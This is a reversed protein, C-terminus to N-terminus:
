CRPRPLRWPWRRRFDTLVCLSPLSPACPSRRSLLAASAPARRLRYWWVGETWAVTCEWRKPLLSASHICEVRRAPLIGWVTLEGEKLGAEGYEDYTKRKEDDSLVEYAESIEKFKEEAAARNDPNKDPHRFSSHAVSSSGCARDRDEDARRDGDSLKRDPHNSISPRRPHPACHLRTVNREPSRQLV